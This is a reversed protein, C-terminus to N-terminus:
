KTLKKIVKKYTWAPDKFFYKLGLKAKELAQFNIFNKRIGKKFYKKYRQEMLEKYDPVFESVHKKQGNFNLYYIDYELAKPLFQYNIRDYIGYRLEIVTREIQQLVGSSGSGSGPYRTYYSLIGGGTKKFNANMAGRIQFDYDGGSKFQEDWPGCKELMKKRFFRNPGVISGRTAAERSFEMTKVRLGETSGQKEVIVFDGYTEDAEPHRALTEMQRSFCDMVVLDDVDATSIFEAEALLFGRNTSAAISERPVDVLRINEPYKQKYSNAIELEKESADNLILIIEFDAFGEATTINQFYAVLYQESKYSPTVISLKKM